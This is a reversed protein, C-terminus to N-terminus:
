WENLALLINVTVTAKGWIPTIGDCTGAEWIPRCRGVSLVEQDNVSIYRPHTPLALPFADSDAQSAANTVSLAWAPVVAGAIGAQKENSV